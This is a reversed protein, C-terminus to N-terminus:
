RNRNPRGNSGIPRIRGMRVGDDDDDFPNKSSRTPGDDIPNSEYTDYRTATKNNIYHSEIPRGPNCSREDEDNDSDYAIDRQGKLGRQQKNPKPTTPENDSESEFEDASEMTLDDKTANKSMYITNYSYFKAICM